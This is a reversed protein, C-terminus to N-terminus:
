YNTPQPRGDQAANILWWSYQDITNSVFRISGDAYCAQIGGSHKSRATAQNSNCSTWSGLGEDPLNQADRIDDSCGGMDNPLRCDGDAHSVIISSGALGFAWVGRPDNQDVGIRVESVMIVNSSGDRINQIALGPRRGNGTVVTFPGSGSLGWTGGKADGGNQRNSYNYQPGCNAAYNGRAWNTVGALGRQCNSANPSDSPCVYTKVRNARVNTWGQDTTITTESLWLNLSGSVSRYLAEQEIFPLILIAWNPGIQNTYPYDNYSSMIVAPPLGGAQDAYSHMAIGMQKLNNQCQARSAAERVKQVAPLLLGILIAIIAIVVLLEILTFGSRSRRM